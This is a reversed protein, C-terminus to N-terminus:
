KSPGLSLISGVPLQSSIIVVANQPLSELVAKVKFLVHNVDAIDNDNVPTDYTVWLVKADQTALFIDNTYILHGSNMGKSILNNLDPEFLPAKGNNLSNINALNEDLGVVSFGLSALCASTVAGLHWIGLVCIKM